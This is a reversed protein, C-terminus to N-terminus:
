LILMSMTNICPYATYLVKYYVVNGEYVACWTLLPLFLICFRDYMITSIIHHHFPWMCWM